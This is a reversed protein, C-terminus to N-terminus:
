KKRVKIMTNNPYVRTAVSTEIDVVFANLQEISGDILDPFKDSIFQVDFGIDGYIEFNDVDSYKKIFDRTEKINGPQIEEVPQGYLNTWDSSKNSKVYIKPSYEHKYQVRKGDEYGRYLIHNGLVSVNTYFNNM